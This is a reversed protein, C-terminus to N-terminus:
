MTGLPGKRAKATDGVITVFLNGNHRTREVVFHPCRNVLNGLVALLTFLIAAPDAESHPAVSHVFDGIWGALAEDGLKPWGPSPSISRDLSVIETRGEFATRLQDDTAGAFDIKGRDDSMASRRMRMREVKVHSAVANRIQMAYEDGAHDTDTAIVIPIGAPILISEFASAGGAAVGLVPARLQTRSTWPSAALFDTLGEVVIVAEIDDAAWKSNLLRVGASDAFVLGVAACSRPWRTKPRAGEIIARAHISAFRGDPEYARVAIRWAAAWRAPWWQPYLHARRSPLLRALDFAAVDGPACGRAALLKHALAIAPDETDDCELLSPAAIASSANWLAALEEQDPRVRKASRAVRRAAIANSASAIPASHAGQLMQIARAHGFHQGALAFVSM